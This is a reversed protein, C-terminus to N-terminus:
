YDGNYDLVEDVFIRGHADTLKDLEERTKRKEENRRAQETSDIRTRASLLYKHGQFDREQYGLFDTLHHLTISLTSPIDLLPVPSGTETYIPSHPVHVFLSCFQALRAPLGLKEKGVVLCTNARISFPRENVPFSISDLTIIGQNSSAHRYDALPVISEGDVEQLVNGLKDYGDPLAGLLGIISLCGCEDRAFDVAQQITPFAIMQVHKNAGHSGAVSCKEYGVALVTVVGFASVCRLLPGLNNSKSPNELLIVIQPPNQSM